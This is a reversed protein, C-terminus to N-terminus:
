PHNDPRRETPTRTLFDWADALANRQTACLDSWGKEADRTGFRIAYEVKKRPRPVERSGKGM